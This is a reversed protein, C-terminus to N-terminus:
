PGNLGIAVTTNAACGASGFRLNGGNTAIDLLDSPDTTRIGLGTNTISLTRSSTTTGPIVTDFDIRSGWANTTWNETAVFSIKADSFSWGNGSRGGGRVSFLVDNMLPSGPAQVTGRGFRGVLQPFFENGSPSGGFGYIGNFYGGIDTYGASSGIGFRSTSGAVDIGDNADGIELTTSNLRKIAQGGGVNIQSTANLTGASLTGGM